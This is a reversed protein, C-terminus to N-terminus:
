INVNLPRRFCLGAVMSIVFWYIMWPAAGLLSWSSRQPYDIEISQIPADPRFPPEEPHVLVDLASWGPREVSVRMLGDGVSLQKDITQGDVEFVLHHYGSERAEINWYLTRESPAWLPVDTAAVAATPRLYVNPRGPEGNDKLKVSLLAVEGVRLPRSQYWLALQGLLLLVPGMMVLMPVLSLVFLRCGGVFVHGAGGLAVALNDMFLLLSILHASIGDKVKKIARQPSTYKFVYLLLVGTVASVLIMSLWEPLVGLPALAARGVANAAANLWVVVQALLDM